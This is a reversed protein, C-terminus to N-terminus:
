TSAFVSKRPKQSTDVGTKDAYIVFRNDTQEPTIFLLGLQYLLFCAAALCVV